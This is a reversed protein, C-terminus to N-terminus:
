YTQVENLLTTPNIHETHCAPLGTALGAKSTHEVGVYWLEALITLQESGRRVLMSRASSSISRWSTANQAVQQVEQHGHGGRQNWIRVHGMGGKLLHLPCLAFFM